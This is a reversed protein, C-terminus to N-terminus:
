PFEPRLLVRRRTPVTAIVLGAPHEPESEAAPNSNSYNEPAAVVPLAVLAGQHQHGGAVSCYKFPGEPDLLAAMTPGFHTLWFISQEITEGQRLAEFAMWLAEFRAKAEGHRWWQPCWRRQTKVGRDSVERRYVECVYKQVFTQVDPYETQPEEAEQEEGQEEEAAPEAEPEAVPPNLALEAAHIATETMQKRVDDTLFQEVVQAATDKAAEAFKAAVAKRLAADMLEGLEGATIVQAAAAGAAATEGNTAAASNTSTTTDTM